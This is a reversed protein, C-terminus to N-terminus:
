IIPPMIEAILVCLLVFASPANYALTSVADNILFRHIQVISHSCFESSRVKFGLRSSSNGRDLIPEYFM